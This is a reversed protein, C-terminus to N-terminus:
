AICSLVFFFFAEHGYMEAINYRLREATTELDVEAEVVIKGQVLHLGNTFRLITAVEAKRVSSRTADYHALEEKVSATLAM